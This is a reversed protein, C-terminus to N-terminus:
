NATAHTQEPVAYYYMTVGNKWVSALKVLRGLKVLEEIHNILWTTKKKEVARAIDHRTVVGGDRVAKLIERKIDTVFSPIDQTPVNGLHPRPPVYGSGWGTLNGREDRQAGRMDIVTM